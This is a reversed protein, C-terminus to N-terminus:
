GNWVYQFYGKTELSSQFQKYLILEREAAPQKVKQAELSTEMSSVRERLDERAPLIVIVKDAIKENEVKDKLYRKLVESREYDLLAGFEDLILIKNAEKRKATIEIMALSFAFAREGSSFASLSRSYEHGEITELVVENKEMDFRVVNKFGKFVYNLFEPAQYVSVFYSSYIRHLSSIIDEYERKRLEKGQLEQLMINLSDHVRGIFTHTTECDDVFKNVKMHAQEICTAAEDITAPNPDTIFYSFEKKSTLIKIENSFDNGLKHIVNGNEQIQRQVEEFGAESAAQTHQFSEYVSRVDEKLNLKSLESEYKKSLDTLNAYGSLKEHTERMRNLEIRSYLEQQRLEDWSKKLTQVRQAGIKDISTQLKNLNHATETKANIKNRLSKVVLLADQIRKRQSRLSDAEKMYEEEPLESAERDLVSLRNHILNELQSISLEVSGLNDIEGQGIIKGGLGKQVAPILRFVLSHGVGALELYVSVEKWRSDLGDIRDLNRKELVNLQRELGSPTLDDIPLDLQQIAEALNRRLEEEEHELKSLLAALTNAQQQDQASQAAVQTQLSEIEQTLEEQKQLNKSLDTELAAIRQALTPFDAKQLEDIQEKIELLQKLAALVSRARTIDKQLESEKVKNISLSEKARKFVTINDEPSIKLFDQKLGQSIDFNQRATSHRQIIDERNRILVERMQSIITDNGRIIRTSILSMAKEASSKKGDVYFEGVTDARIQDEQTFAWKRPTVIAQITKCERPLGTISVTASKLASRLSEFDSQRQFVHEGSIIELLQAAVSKGIGNLGQVEIIRGDIFGDLVRLGTQGDFKFKIEM